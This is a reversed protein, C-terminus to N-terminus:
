TGGVVHDFLSELRARSKSDLSEPAITVLISISRSACMDLVTKLFKEVKDMGNVSIVYAMSDFALVAAGESKIFRNVRAQVDHELTKPNLTDEWGSSESLWVISVDELGLLDKLKPPFLSTFFLSGKPSQLERFLVGLEKPRTELVLYSNGKRAPARRAPAPAPAPPAPAPAPAVSAAPATPASRPAPTVPEGKEDVFVSEIKARGKVRKSSTAAAEAAAPGPAGKAVEEKLLQFLKVADMPRRARLAATIERLQSAAARVDRGNERQAQLQRSLTAVETAMARSAEGSIANIAEKLLTERRAGTDRRAEELAYHLLGEERAQLGGAKTLFDMLQDLQLLQRGVLGLAQEEAQLKDEHDALTREAGSYDEQELLQQFAAPDLTDGLTAFAGVREQRAELIGARRALASAVLQKLEQATAAMIDAAEASQGQRIILVARGVEHGFKHVELNLRRGQQILSRIQIAYRDIEEPSVAAARPSPPVAPISPPPPLRVPAPISM